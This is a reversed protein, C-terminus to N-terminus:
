TLSIGFQKLHHTGHKYLLQVQMDHDLHGFFPNAIQKNRDESFVEFFHDIERQLEAVAEKKTACRTPSPDDPMLVNPTNEPFEKESMLFGQMRPIKAEETVVEMQTKGSAIRVYDSMHEVMQQLNMKGWRRPTDADMQDLIHTYEQKLFDAKKQLNEM